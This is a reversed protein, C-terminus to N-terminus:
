ENACNLSMKMKVVATLMLMLGNLFQTVDMPRTQLTIAFCAADLCLRIDGHGRMRRAAPYPLESTASAQLYSQCRGIAQDILNAVPHVGELM